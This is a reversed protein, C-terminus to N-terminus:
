LAVRLNSLRAIAGCPPLALELSASSTPLKHITYALLLPLLHTQKKCFQVPECSMFMVHVYLRVKCTATRLSSVIVVDDLSPALREYAASDGASCQAAQLNNPM